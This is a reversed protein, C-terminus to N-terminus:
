QSPYVGFFIIPVALIIFVLAEISDIDKIGKIGKLAGNAAKLVNGGPVGFIVRKLMWLTYAPAIILYAWGCARDM